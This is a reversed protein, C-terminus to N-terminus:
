RLYHLLDIRQEVLWEERMIEFIKLVILRLEVLLEPHGAQVLHAAAYLRVLPGGNQRRVQEGLIVAAEPINWPLIWAADGDELRVHRLPRGNEFREVGEVTARKCRGIADRM